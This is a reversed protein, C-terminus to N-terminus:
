DPDGESKVVDEEVSWDIDKIITALAGEKLSYASHYFKKFTGLEFVYNVLFVAVPMFEARISPIAPHKLRQEYTSKILWAYIDPFAHMPIENSLGTKMEHGKLTGHYLELLTDFSGSSGILTSVDYKQIQNRLVLLEQDLLTRLYIFDERSMKEGPTLLDFLRSVGLPFSHKWAIGNENAIIFETSGGGIDMVLVNEKSLTITQRVGEFILDAERDGDILEIEIGFYKHVQEVFLQGNSAERLASTGFAFVRSCDFNKLNENHCLLADLGRVFRSEKIVGDRYGGSGLKVPLKSQFLVKWGYRNVDAILLNFTNSGCDIVGVNM